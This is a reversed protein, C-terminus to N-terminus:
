KSEQNILTNRYMEMLVVLDNETTIPLMSIAKALFAEEDALQPFITNKQNNNSMLYKPFFYPVGEIFYLSDWGGM